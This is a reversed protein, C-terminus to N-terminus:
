QWHRPKGHEGVVNALVHHSLPATFLSGCLVAHDELRWSGALRHVPTQAWASIVPLHVNVGQQSGRCGCSCLTFFPLAADSPCPPLSLVPFQRDVACSIACATCMQVAAKPLRCCDGAGCEAWSQDGAKARPKM